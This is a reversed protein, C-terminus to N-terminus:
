SLRRGVKIDSLKALRREYRTKHSFPTELFIRVMTLAEDTSIHEAPLSLVNADEHERGQQVVDANFGVISRVGPFRNAVIDMGHASGCVLIGRDAPYRNVRLAVRVAYDVYDDDPVIRRAGLDVVVNGARSLRLRVVEKLRFGRHDGGLYIRM